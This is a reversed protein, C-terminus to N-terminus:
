PRLSKMRGDMPITVNHPPSNKPIQQSTVQANRSPVDLEARVKMSFWGQKGGTFDCIHSKIKGMGAIKGKECERQAAFYTDIHFAHPRRVMLNFQRRTKKRGPFNFRETGQRKISLM